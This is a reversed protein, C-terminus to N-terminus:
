IVFNLSFGVLPLRATAHRCMSVCVCVSLCVHHLGNDSETIKAFEGLLIDYFNSVSIQARSPYQPTQLPLKRVSTETCSILGMMM